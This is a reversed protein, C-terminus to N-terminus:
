REHATINVVVRSPDRGFVNETKILSCMGIDVHAKILEVQKSKLRQQLYFGMITNTKSTKEM